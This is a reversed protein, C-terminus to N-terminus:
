DQKRILGLEPKGKIVSPLRDLQAPTLGLCSDVKEHQFRVVNLEADLHLFALYVEVGAGCNGGGSSGPITPERFSFTLYLQGDVVKHDIDWVGEIYSLGSLGSLDYTRVPIGAYALELTATTRLEYPHVLTLSVPKPESMGTTQWQLHELDFATENAFRERFASPRCTTFNFTDALTAPVFLEVFPARDGSYHSGVLPIREGIRDYAYWGRLLRPRWQHAMQEADCVGGRELYMTIPYRGDITGELLYYRETDIQTVFSWSQAGAAPWGIAFCLLLALFRM